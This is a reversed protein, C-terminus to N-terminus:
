VGYGGDIGDDGDGSRLRATELEVIALIEEASDCLHILDFDDKSLKQTALLRDRIWDVMGSWYDVPTFVTPFHHMKKTQVLTLSEFMEDLTGFGGPFAVFAQAYRVFMTKRAFFHRFHLSVDQYDNPKQEHPLEINLGVSLAGADRAGRNAAEMIGPGGGTIIAYGAEGLQAAVDRAFAYDPHDPPTRASGFISVGRRVKAMTKFGKRFEEFILDLRAPDDITTEVVDAGVGRFLEEDFTEPPLPAFQFEDFDM